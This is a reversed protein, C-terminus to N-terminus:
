KAAERAANLRREHLQAERATKDYIVYQILDRHSHSFDEPSTPEVGHFSRDSREFALLSNPKYPATKVKIFHEYSHHLSKACSFDPDKPRYLSTGLHEISEDAPLYIMLVILKSHLDSHPQLFYGAKHRILQVEVSVQPWSSKDGFRAQMPEAFSDLVAEALEISYFWANFEDWFRKLTAPLDQTWGDNLDRQERFKFHDLKLSSIEFLNQYASGGPLHRLLEHYYNDPFIRDLCYNPYPSAILQATRLREVIHALPSVPTSSNGMM